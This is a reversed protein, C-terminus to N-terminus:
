RLMALYYDPNVLRKELDFFGLAGNIAPMRQLRRPQHLEWAWLGPSWAVMALDADERVFPRCAVLDVTGLVVGLPGTCDLRDVAAHDPVQCSCLAFRGRHKTPWSRIELRKRKAMILSAYPQKISLGKM